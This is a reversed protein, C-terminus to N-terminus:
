KGHEDIFSITLFESHNAARDLPQLFTVVALDENERIQFIAAFQGMRNRAEVRYTGNGPLLKNTDPLVQVWGTGTGGAIDAQSAPVVGIEYRRGLLTEAKRVNGASLTARLLTSSVVDEGVTAPSFANVQFGFERGSLILRAVDGEANFGYHYDPGIFLSRAGLTDVLISHVFDAARLRSFSLSFDTWIVTEIGMEGMLSLREEFTSLRPPNRSPSLICLPHEKFTFVASTSGGKRGDEAAHRLIRQHGLHVGDFFGLALSTSLTGPTIDELKLIKL